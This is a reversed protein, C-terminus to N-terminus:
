KASRQQMLALNLNERADPYDPQLELVKQYERIAEDFRSLLQLDVALNYHATPNQPWQQMVRRFHALAEEAHGEKLLLDALGAEAQDFGPEIKLSRQYESTAEALQGQKALAFALNTHVLATESGLTIVRRYQAIAGDLQGTKWLAVGLQFHAPVFWPWLGAAIQLHLLAEDVRNHRLLFDGLNFHALGNEPDIALAHNWLTEGNKWYSAQVRACFVLAILVVSAAAGLVIRRAPWVRSFESVGWTIAIYLGIQPLYTYRDARGQMAVQVFGIVPVLMILYWFWGVFLYPKRRTIVVFTSILLLLGAALLVQWLPLRNGPHHYYASLDVPWIMQRIYTMCAVLANEIRPIMPLTEISRITTKQALLTAISSAISLLLLPVKELACKALSPFGTLRRLPWYDLLLLILPLTVLMPKTMLGLAFVLVIVLYRSLSPMRAYWLYAAMTLMFFFGSLMDKRESVWGVSEVHLPHIAFLAAVFGSQWLAGTM